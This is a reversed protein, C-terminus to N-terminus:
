FKPIIKNNNKIKTIRYTHFNFTCAHNKIKIIITTKVFGRIEFVKNKIYTLYINLIHVHIFSKIRKLLTGRFSYTMEELFIFFSFLWSNGIFVFFM